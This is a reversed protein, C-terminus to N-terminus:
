VYRYGYHTLLKYINNAGVPNRSHVSFQKLEIQNELIYKAVDYGTKEEGLDHDFHIWIEMNNNQANQIAEICEDYNHAHYKIDDIKCNVVPM